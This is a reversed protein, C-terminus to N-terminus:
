EVLRIEIRRNVSRGEETENSALPATEGYGKAALRAPAVGSAALWKMVSNARRESLAENYPASGVDDTHGGVEFKKDPCSQMLGAISQITEIDDGRIASKDTEFNFPKLLLLNVIEPVCDKSPPPPEPVPEAKASEKVLIEFRTQDSATRGKADSTTVVIDYSGPALPTEVALLWRGNGNSILSDDTGFRFAKGGTWSPAVTLSTADGEAWTGSVVTPSKEGSYLDVTPTAPGAADVVLENATTDSVSNGTDDSALVIIDYTGDKLPRPVALTWTGAASTLAEDKGLVYDTGDLSVALQKAVGEDWTGTIKPRAVEAEAANVTPAKMVAPPTPTPEPQTPEPQTPEPQTPEPQTPEPQPPTPPTPPPAEAITLEDKNEDSTANGLADAATAVVDYTGALLPIAPALTWTGSGDSTLQADTGLVYTKGDLTVSLTRAKGEPWTGTVPLETGPNVTPAAPGTTDIQIEASSQDRAPNGFSDAAIVIVDHIGDPLPTDPKLSWKGAGDSTLQPAEGLRYILGNLEVELMNGPAEQWTGTIATAADKGYYANVTPAAPGTTDIEVEAVTEDKLIRGDKATATVVVDYIGDKLPDPTLTWKGEGDAILAGGSDLTYANGGITVALGGSREPDWTGTIQPQPVSVALRDVTPPTAEATEGAVTADVVVKATASSTNGAKDSTEVTVEHEGNSLPTPLDLRWGDRGIRQLGTFVRYIYRSGDVIVAIMDTDAGDLTGVISRGPAGITLSTIGPTAPPTSDVTVKGEAVSINGAKDATEVQVAHSGDTLPQPLDLKWKDRGIRQLGTFVRYIYKAGDVTVSLTEADRPDMTGTLSTIPGKGGLPGFTPAAPPKSDILLGGAAKESETNGAADTVEVGIDYSGEGLDGPVALEWNGKDSKLQDGQGLEAAKDGLTVKLSVADGEPWTGAVAKPATAGAYARITPKKPKATDITLKGPEALKATRTAGDSTEITVPYDGDALVSPYRLTWNGKGDSTLEPNEGLKFTKDGITVGLTKAIGEPWTGSLEPLSKNTALNTFAPLALDALTAGARDVRRVGYTGAVAQVAAAIAEDSPAAGTIKADRGNFAVQAWDAGAAKLQDGAAAGIRTTLGDTGFTWAGFFPLLALPSWLVWRPWNSRMDIV